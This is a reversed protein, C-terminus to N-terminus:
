NSHHRHCNQPHCYSQVGIVLNDFGPQKILQNVIVLEYEVVMHPKDLSCKNNKGFTGPAVNIGDGKEIQSDLTSLLLHLLCLRM